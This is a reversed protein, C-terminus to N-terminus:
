YNVWASIVWETSAKLEPRLCKTVCPPGRPSISIQLKETRQSTGPARHDGTPAKRIRALQDRPNTRIYSRQLLHKPLGGRPRSKLLFTLYTVITWKHKAEWNEGRPAIDHKARKISLFELWSDTCGDWRLSKNCRKQPLLHVKAPWSIVLHLYTSKTMTTHKNKKQALWCISYSKLNSERVGTNLHKAQNIIQKFFLTRTEECQYEFGKMIWSLM